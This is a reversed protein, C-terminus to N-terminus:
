GLVVEDARAAPDHVLHGGVQRVATGGQEEVRATQLEAAHRQGGVRVQHDDVRAYRVVDGRAVVVGATGLALLGRALEPNRLQAVERIGVQRADLLQRIREAAASAM